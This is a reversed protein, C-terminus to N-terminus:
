KIWLGMGLAKLVREVTEFSATRKGHEIAVATGISIGALAALERQTLKQQIRSDRIAQALQQSPYLRQPEARKAEAAASLRKALGLFEQFIKETSPNKALPQDNINLINSKKEIESM